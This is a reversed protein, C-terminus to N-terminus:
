FFAKIGIGFFITKSYGANIYLRGKYWDKGLEINYYPKIEKVSNIPGTGLDYQTFDKYTQLAIGASTSINFAEQNGGFSYVYGITSYYLSPNTSSLLTHNMGITFLIAEGSIGEDDSNIHSQYGAHLGAGISNVQMGIFPQATANIASLVISFM